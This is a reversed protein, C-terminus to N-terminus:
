IQFNLRTQFIQAHEYAARCPPVARFQASDEDEHKLVTLCARLMPLDVVMKNVILFPISSSHM